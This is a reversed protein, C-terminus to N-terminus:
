LAINSLMNNYVVLSHLVQVAIRRKLCCLEISVLWIKLMSKLLINIKIHLYIYIKFNNNNGNNKLHSIITHIKSDCITRLNM